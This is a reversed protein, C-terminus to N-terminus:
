GRSGARGGESDTRQEVRHTTATDDSPELQAAALPDTSSAPPRTLVGLYHNIKDVAKRALSWRDGGALAALISPFGVGVVFPLSPTQGIPSVVLFLCLSGVVAIVAAQAAGRVTWPRSPLHAFGLLILGAAVGVLADTGSWRGENNDLTFFVAIIAGLIAAQDARAIGM